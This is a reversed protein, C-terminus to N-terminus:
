QRDAGLQVLQAPDARAVENMAGSEADYRYLSNGMGNPSLTFVIDGHDNLAADGLIM